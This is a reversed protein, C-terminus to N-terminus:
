GAQCRPCWYTLRADKGRKDILIASGCRRCPEGARGYVWLRASPDDRRTTRRFGLYTTMAALGETVNARLFKRATTLLGRVQEDSLQGVDAFPYVGCAFLVESKYVNGIGALVRQDLLVEAVPESARAWIRRFAEDSDFQEALLDPGLRTLERSRRLETTRLWEAVPISFGVAVYEATSVVIRMDRRPRQWREGPRYIHWSGNMRMHTRLTLDGSFNMLLHKGSSRVSDVTRGTIPADDRIRTLAPFVSEFHTVVHGAFARHLTRAARFITDGEPM